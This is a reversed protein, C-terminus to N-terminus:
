HGAGGAGLLGSFVKPGSYAVMFGVAVGGWFDEIAILPQVDKKRAFLVIAVAAFVLSVLLSVGHALDFKATGAQSTFWGGTGGILAGIIMSALSAKVQLHHEITDINCVSAIEYEVEIQLRYSAPKFGVGRSTRVTFVRTTSNGAQLTTATSEPNVLTALVDSFRNSEQELREAWLKKAEESGHEAEKRITRTVSGLLPVNINVRTEQPASVDRAIAPTLYSSPSIEVGFGLGGFSIKSINSLLNLGRRSYKPVLGKGPLGLEQKVKDLEIIQEEIQEAQLGRIRKDVDVFETPLYTSVRLLKLPVEFPNQVTVFISFEDGAVLTETSASITVKIAGRIPGQATSVSLNPTVM